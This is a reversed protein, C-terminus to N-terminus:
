LDFWIQYISTLLLRYNWPGSTFCYRLRTANDSMLSEKAIYRFALWLSAATWWKCIVVYHLFFFWTRSTMDDRAHWNLSSTVCHVLWHHHRPAVETRIQWWWWKVDRDHSWWVNVVINAWVTHVSCTEATPKALGLTVSLTAKTQKKKLSPPM